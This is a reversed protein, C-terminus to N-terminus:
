RNQGDRAREKEWERWGSDERQHSRRIITRSRRATDVRTQTPIEKSFYSKNLITDFAVHDIRARKQWCRLM